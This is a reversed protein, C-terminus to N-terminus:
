HWFVPTRCVFRDPMPTTLLSRFLPDSRIDQTDIRETVESIQPEDDDSGEGTYNVTDEEEDSEEDSSFLVSQLAPACDEARWPFASEPSLSPEFVALFPELAEDESDDDLSGLTFRPPSSSAPIPLSSSASTLTGPRLSNRLDKRQHEKITRKMQMVTPTGSDASPANCWDYQADSRTMAPLPRAIFNATIPPGIDANVNNRLM